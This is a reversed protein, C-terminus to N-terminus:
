SVEIQILHHSANPGSRRYGPWVGVESARSSVESLPTLSISPAGNQDTLGFRQDAIAMIHAM